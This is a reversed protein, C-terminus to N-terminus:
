KKERNRVKFKKMDKRKKKLIFGAWMTKSMKENEGKESRDTHRGRQIGALEERVKVNIKM